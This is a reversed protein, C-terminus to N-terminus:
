QLLYLQKHLSSISNSGHMMSVIFIIQVTVSALILSTKHVSSFHFSIVGTVVVILMMINKNCGHGQGVRM